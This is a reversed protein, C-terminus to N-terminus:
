ARDRTFCFVGTRKSPPFSTYMHIRSWLSERDGHLLLQLPELARWLLLTKPKGPNLTCEHRAYSTRIWFHGLLTDASCCFNGSKKKLKKYSNYILDDKFNLLSENCRFVLAYARKMKTRNSLHGRPKTQNLDDCDNSKKLVTQILLM